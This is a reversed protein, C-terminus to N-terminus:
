DNGLWDVLDQGRSEVGSVKLRSTICKGVVGSNIETSNDGGPPGFRFKDLLLSGPTFM